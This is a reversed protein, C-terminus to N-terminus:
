PKRRRSSTAFSVLLVLSAVVVSSDAVNFTPYREMGLLGYFRVSIFDVVGDPRLARDILNGLGGGLIAAISWRQVANLDQSRFYFVVLVTLVLLPLAIFLLERAIPPFDSGISFALGINRVHWLWLFDGMVRIRSGVPILRGVLAKTTQDLILIGLALFFPLMKKKGTESLEV